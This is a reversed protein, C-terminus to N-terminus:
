RPIGCSWLSRSDAAGDSGSLEWLRFHHWLLTKTTPATLVGTHTSLALRRQSVPRLPIQNYADALDVKTFGYGGSLRQMLIEPSPMSQRRSCSLTSPLHITGVCVSLKNNSKRVPVVPTRKWIGRKIGAEYAEVLDERIAFPVTRPECFVSKSDEKFRVELEFDKLKGLEPKFLDPYDDCM